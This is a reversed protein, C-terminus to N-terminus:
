AHMKYEPHIDPKIKNARAKRPQRSLVSLSHSFLFTNWRGLISPRRVSIEGVPSLYTGLIQVDQSINDWELTDWGGTPSMIKAGDNRALYIIVDHRQWYCQTIIPLPAMANHKTCSFRRYFRAKSPLYFAHSFFLWDGCHWQPLFLPIGNGQGKRLTTISEILGVTTLVNVSNDNFNACKLKLCFM